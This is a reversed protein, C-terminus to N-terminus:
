RQIRLTQSLAQKACQLYYYLYYFSLSDSPLNSTLRFSDVCFCFEQHLGHKPVGYMNSWSETPRVMFISEWYNIRGNRWGHVTISGRGSSLLSEKIFLVRLTNICFLEPLVGGLMLPGSPTAKTLRELEMEGFQRSSVKGDRIDWLVHRAGSRSGCCWWGTEWEKIKAWVSRKARSKKKRRGGRGVWGWSRNLDLSESSIGGRKPPRGPNGVLSASAARNPTGM